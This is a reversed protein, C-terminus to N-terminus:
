QWQQVEHNRQREFSLKYSAKGNSQVVISPITIKMKYNSEFAKDLNDLYYIKIIILISEEILEIYEKQESTNMMELAVIVLSLLLIITGPLEIKISENKNNVPLLYDFKNSFKKVFPFNGGIFVRSSESSQLWCSNDGIELDIEEGTKLLKEKVDSFLTQYDVEINLNTLVERATGQGINKLELFLSNPKVKNKNESDYSIDIPLIKDTNSTFYLDFSTPFIQPEFIKYRQVKM